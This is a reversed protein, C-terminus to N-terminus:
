SERADLIAKILDEPADEPAPANPRAIVANAVELTRRYAALYERCERCLRIHWEFVSTQKDSLEGELYLLVFYEFEKCTIMNHVRKLMLGKLWRRVGGPHAHKM